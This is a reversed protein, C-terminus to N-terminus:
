IGFPRLPKVPRLTWHACLEGMTERMREMWAPDEGGIMLLTPGAGSLCFALAGAEYALREMEDYGPILKRRYPQHIRDDAADKLIEPMGKELAQFMLCARSLNHVVTKRDYANPLVSRAQSTQLSFDATAACFTFGDWVPVCVARVHGGALTCACLGGLLAPAVNDPHGDLGAALDLLEQRSLRGNLLSNAAKLGGVIAAASSGLGSALPIVCDKVVRLAPMPEKAKDFAARMAEWLLTKEPNDTPAGQEILAPAASETVTWTNGVDWAIGLTDFGCGLNASTAPVIFQQM